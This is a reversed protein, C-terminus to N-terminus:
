VYIESLIKKTVKDQDLLFVIKSVPKILVMVGITNYKNHRNAMKEVYVSEVETNPIYTNIQSHITEQLSSILSDDLDEFKYDQIGIGMDPTTPYTKKRLLILNRINIALGVIGSETSVKNFKDVDLIIEKKNYLENIKIDVISM